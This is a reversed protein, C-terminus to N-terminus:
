ESPKIKQKLVIMIIHDDRFLITAKKNVVLDRVEPSYTKLISNLIILRRTKEEVIPDLERYEIFGNQYLDYEEASNKGVIHFVGEINIAGAELMEFEAKQELSLTNLFRSYGSSSVRAKKIKPVLNPFLIITVIACLWVIFGIFYNSHSKIVGGIRGGM